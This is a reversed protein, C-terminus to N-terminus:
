LSGRSDKQWIVVSERSPKRMYDRMQQSSNGRYRAVLIEKPTLGVQVGVEGLIEDVPINIGAFRVNSVVLGVRGKNKLCRSIESLVLYMDEFYGEIMSTVQPNNTGNQRIEEIMDDLIEPKRYGAAEYQKRAEVHSRITQYRISKLEENTTVFDFVMELAYIRTYDHRNPYPPSTIVADFRQKTSLKRADGIEAMVSVTRDEKFKYHETVDKLMSKVRDLFISEIANSNVDRRILRLFGGAKSTNSVSELINLFGLNFFARVKPASIADITSKLELLREAIEPRFAKKVLPIDPLGMKKFSSAEKMSGTFLALQRELGAVDYDSIKVNTLFVSFPLIDFGRANIGFEKCTLLTTGSGCFPDLVWSGESLGFENILYVALERSYGHKYAYWNHIPIHQNAHPSICPGLEPKEVIRITM